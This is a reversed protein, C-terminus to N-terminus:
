VQARLEHAGVRGLVDGAHVSTGVDLTTHFTGNAPAYSYRERKYGAISVPEGTYPEASGDTIVRGLHPGRNTEIVVHVTEGVRFGPGLGIVLPAQDIQVEPTDRKRMRADVVVGPTLATLVTEIPGVFVPVVKGWLLLAKLSEPSDVREARVSELEAEGEFVATAFAMRRRTTSPTPSEVIVPLYGNSYLLHAVASGVDGGGKIVVVKDSALSQM